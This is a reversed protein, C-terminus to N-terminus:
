YLNFYIFLLSGQSTCRLPNLVPRHDLFDGTQNRTLASAQTLRWAELLPRTLPLRNINRERERVGFIFLFHIFLYCQVFCNRHLSSTGLLIGATRAGRGRLGRFAFVGRWGEGGGEGHM